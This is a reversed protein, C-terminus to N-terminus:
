FAGLRMRLASLLARFLVTESSIDQQPLHVGCVCLGHPLALQHRAGRSLMPFSVGHGRGCPSRAERLKSPCSPERLPCRPVLTSCHPAAPGCPHPGLAQPGLSCHAPEAGAVLLAPTLLCPTSCREPPQLPDPM